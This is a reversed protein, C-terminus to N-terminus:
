ASSDKSCTPHAGDSDILAGSIPPHWHTMSTHIVPTMTLGPALGTTGDDVPCNHASCILTCSLVSDVDRAADHRAKVEPPLSKENWTGVHPMEGYTKPLEEIFNHISENPGLLPTTLIRSSPSGSSPLASEWEHNFVRIRLRMKWGIFVFQSQSSSASGCSRDRSYINAHAPHHHGM